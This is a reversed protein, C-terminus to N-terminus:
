NLLPQLFEKRIMKTIVYAKMQVNNLDFMLLRETMNTPMRFQSDVYKTQFQLKIFSFKCENDYGFTHGQCGPNVMYVECQEAKSLLGQTPWHDPRPRTFLVRCKDPLTPCRIAFVCDFKLTRVAPGHQQGQFLRIYDTERLFMNLTYMSNYLVRGQEDCIIHKAIRQTDSLFDRNMPFFINNAFRIVTQLSCCQPLSTPETIVCYNTKSVQCDSLHLHAVDTEPYGFKDTDSMMGITTSGENQSGLTFHKFPLKMMNVCISIYRDILHSVHRRLSVMEETVGIDDMVQALEISFRKLNEIEMHM